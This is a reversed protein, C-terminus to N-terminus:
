IQESLVALVLDAATAAGLEARTHQAVDACRSVMHANRLVESLAQLARDTTYGSAPLVAAVGLRELRDGNDWHDGMHPVVIQPRGSMMAQGTTGIGGHHVIAACRSFIKSHPLYPRALATETTQSTDPKGTLYIARLGLSRCVAASREYFSGPAFVAFSGLTFVVPPAGADFFAEVDYDLSENRGSDSDFVPFGTFNAGAVAAPDEPGLLSSYLALRLAPEGEVEFVPASTLPALGHEKRVGNVPGAYRRKMENFVVNRWMKNWSLGLGRAPFRTMMRFDPTRPPDVASQFALPQLLCPVFPIQRKQCVIEAALAFMSGVIMNADNAVKDLARASEPLSRLIIQKILFDPSSMVRRAFEAESLGLERRVSEFDPM